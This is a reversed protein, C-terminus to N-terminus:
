WFAIACRPPMAERGQQCSTGPNGKEPNERETFRGRGTGRRRASKPQEGKEEQRQSCQPTEGRPTRPNEDGRLPEEIATRTSADISGPLVDFIHFLSDPSPELDLMQAQATFSHFDQAQFLTNLLLNCDDGPYPDHACDLPSEGAEPDQGKNENEQANKGPPTGTVYTASGFGRELFVDRNAKEARGPLIPCKTQVDRTVTLRGPLLLRSLLDKEMEGQKQDKQGLPFCLAEPEALAFSISCCWRNM